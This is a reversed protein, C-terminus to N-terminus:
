SIAILEASESKSESNNKREQDIKQELEELMKETAIENIAFCKPYILGTFVKDYRSFSLAATEGNVGTVYITISPDNGEYGQSNYESSQVEGGVFNYKEAFERALKEYEEPHKALNSDLDLSVKKALTRGLGSIFAEGTVADMSFYYGYTGPNSESPKKREGFRVDGAWSARPYDERAPEYSMYITAGDLDVGWIEWLRQAGIEAAEEMTMDKSTPKNNVLPDAVVTYNAKTYGDPVSSEKTSIPTVNYSTPIVEVKKIEKALVSETLVSFLLTVATIVAFAELITKGSEKKNETNRNMKQNM